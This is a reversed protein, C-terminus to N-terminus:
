KRQEYAPAEMPEKYGQRYFNFSNSDPTEIEKLYAVFEEPSM